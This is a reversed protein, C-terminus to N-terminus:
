YLDDLKTRYHFCIQNIPCRDCHPNKIKCLLACLDLVALNYERSRGTPILSTALDLLMKKRAPNSPMPIDIGFVRILFRAVNTDVVAVDFGYAFSLIARASYEGVGPLQILLEYKDPIKGFYKKELVSALNILEESRYNLGLPNVFEKLNNSNANALSKSDPYQKIISCYAIIVRDGVSTQQLLKEAILIHFPNRSERWPFHRQNSVFWFLLLQQLSKIEEASLHNNIM